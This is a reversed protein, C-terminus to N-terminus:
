SPQNLNTFIMTFITDMVGDIEDFDTLNSVVHHVISGLTEAYAM